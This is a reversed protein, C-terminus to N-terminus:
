TQILGLPPKLGSYMKLSQPSKLSTCALNNWRRMLSALRPLGLVNRLFSYFPENHSELLYQLQCDCNLNYRTHCTLSTQSTHIKLQFAWLDSLAGEGSPGEGHRDVTRLERLNLLLLEPFKPAEQCLQVQQQPLPARGKQNRTKNIFSNLSLGLCFSLSLNRPM